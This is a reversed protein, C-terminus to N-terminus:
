AFFGERNHLGTDCRLRNMTTQAAVLDAEMMERMRVSSMSRKELRVRLVDHMVEALQEDTPEHDVALLDVVPTNLLTM